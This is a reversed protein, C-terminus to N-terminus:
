AAMFSKTKPVKCRRGQRDSEDQTKTEIQDIGCNPVIGELVKWTYIIRYREFRREESNMKLINLRNWYSEERLWSVKATFDKLLKEIKEIEGSKIPM